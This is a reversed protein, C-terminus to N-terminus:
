RLVTDIQLILQAVGHQQDKGVLLVEGVGHRGCLDGVLQAQVGQALAVPAGEGGEGKCFRLQRQEEIHWCSESGQDLGAATLLIDQNACCGANTSM